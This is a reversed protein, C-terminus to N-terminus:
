VEMMEYTADSFVQEPGDYETHWREREDIPTFDKFIKIREREIGYWRIIESMTQYDEKCQGYTEIARVITLCDDGSLEVISFGDVANCMNWHIKWIDNKAFDRTYIDRRLCNVITIIDQKFLVIVKFDSKVANSAAYEMANSLKAIGINTLGNGSYDKRWKFKKLHNKKM